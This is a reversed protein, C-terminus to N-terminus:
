AHVPAGAPQTANTSQTVKEIFIEELTPEMVEFRTVRAHQIAAALLSQADAGENLRIEAQGGYNKFSHISPHNLFVADGTFNILVRNVPYRSKIERMSGSLVLHSNHILCISDCLKEVQDM